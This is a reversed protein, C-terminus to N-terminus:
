NNRCNWYKGRFRRLFVLTETIQISTKSSPTVIVVLYGSPSVPLHCVQDHYNIRPNKPVIAVRQMVRIAEDYNEHRLEMEAWESYVEALEEVTRFLVKTARELIQRAANLDQDAQGNAGGEEYFKAFNVYLKHM